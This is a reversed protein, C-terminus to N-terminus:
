IERRRSFCTPLVQKESYQTICAHHRRFLGPSFGTAIKFQTTFTTVSNYGVEQCIAAITKLPQRTLAIKAMEFRKNMLYRQPTLGYIKKFLRCFHFKSFCSQRAIEDLTINKFYNKDIFWKARILRKYLYFNPVIHRDEQIM